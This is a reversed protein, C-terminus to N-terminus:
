KRRGRGGRWVAGEGYGERGVSFGRGGEEYLERVWGVEKERWVRYEM